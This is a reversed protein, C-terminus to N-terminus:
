DNLKYWLEARWLENQYQNRKTFMEILAEKNTWIKHLSYFGYKKACKKNIFYNRAHLLKWNINDFGTVNEPTKIFNRKEIIDGNEDIIYGVLIPDDYNIPPDNDWWIELICGKYYNPEPSYEILKVM